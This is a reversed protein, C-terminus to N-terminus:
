AGFYKRLQSDALAKAVPGGSSGVTKKSGTGLPHSVAAWSWLKGQGVLDVSIRRGKIEREWRVGDDGLTCRWAAEGAIDALADLARKSTTLRTASDDALMARLRTSVAARSQGLRLALSHISARGDEQLARVLDAEFDM